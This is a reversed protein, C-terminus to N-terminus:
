ALDLEEQQLAFRAAAWETFSRWCNPCLYEMRQAWSARLTMRPKRRPIIRRCADCQVQPLSMNFLDETLTTETDERPLQFM